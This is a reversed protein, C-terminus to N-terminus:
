SVFDMFIEPDLSDQDTGLKSANGVLWRDATKRGAEFLTKIFKWDTNLASSLNL